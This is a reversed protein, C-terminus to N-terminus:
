DKLHNLTDNIIISKGVGTYGTIFVPRNVKIQEKLLWSFRMTNVTPVVLDFYSMEPNYIFSPVYKDWAIWDGNLAETDIFYSYLEGRPLEVGINDTVLRDFKTMGNVDLAGGLSWVLCFVFVKEIYKIFNKKEDEIRPCYEPRFFAEMLSCFNVILSLYDTKIPQKLSNRILALGKDIIRSMLM